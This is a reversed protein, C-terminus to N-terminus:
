PSGPLRICLLSLPYPLPVVWLCTLSTSGDPNTSHNSTSPTPFPPIFSLVRHKPRPPLGQASIAQFRVRLTAAWYSKTFSGSKLFEVRTYLSPYRQCDEWTGIQRTGTVTTKWPWQVVAKPLMDPAFTRESLHEGSLMVQSLIVELCTPLLANHDFNCSSPLPFFFITSSAEKWFPTSIEMNESEQRQIHSDNPGRM